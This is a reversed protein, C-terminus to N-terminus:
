NESARRETAQAPKSSRWLGDVARASSPREDALYTDGHAVVIRASTRWIQLSSAITETIAFALGFWVAAVILSRM